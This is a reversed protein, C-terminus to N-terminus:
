GPSTNKRSLPKDRYTVWPGNAIKLFLINGRKSSNSFPRHDYRSVNQNFVIALVRVRFHPTVPMDLDRTAVLRESASHTGIYVALPAVRPIRRPPLKRAVTSSATRVTTLPIAGAGIALFRDATVTPRHDLIDAGSAAGELKFSGHAALQPEVIPLRM